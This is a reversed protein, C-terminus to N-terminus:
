SELQASLSDLEESIAALLNQEKDEAQMKEFYADFALMAFMDQKDVIGFKSKILDLQENLALATRHVRFEDGAKVKMPYEKDGIQIKVSVAEM